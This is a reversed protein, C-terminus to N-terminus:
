IRGRVGHSLRPVGSACFFKSAVSRTATPCRLAKVRNQIRACGVAFAAFIALVFTFPRM